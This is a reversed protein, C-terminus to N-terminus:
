HKNTVRSGHSLERRLTDLSERHHQARSKALSYCAYLAQHIEHQAKVDEPTLSEKHKLLSDFDALRVTLTHWFAARSYAGNFRRTFSPM